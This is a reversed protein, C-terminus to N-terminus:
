LIAARRSTRSAFFPTAFAGRPHEATREAGDSTGVDALFRIVKAASVRFPWRAVQQTGDLSVVVNSSMTM